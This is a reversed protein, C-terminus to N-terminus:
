TIQKYNTCDLNELSTLWGSRKFKPMNLRIYIQREDHLYNPACGWRREYDRAALQLCKAGLLEADIEKKEFGDRLKAVIAAM